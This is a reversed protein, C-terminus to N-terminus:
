AASLQVASLQAESSYVENAAPISLMMGNKRTAPDTVFQQQSQKAKSSSAAGLGKAEKGTLTLSGTGDSATSEELVGQGVLNTVAAFFDDWTGDHQKYVQKRIKNKKSCRTSEDVSLADIISREM